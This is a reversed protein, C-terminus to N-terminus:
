DVPLARFRSGFVQNVAPARQHLVDVHEECSRSSAHAVVNLVTKPNYEDVIIVFWVAHIRVHGLKWSPVHLM